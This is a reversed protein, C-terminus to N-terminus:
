RVREEFAVPGIWFGGRLVLGQVGAFPSSPVVGQTAPNAQLAALETAYRLILVDWPSGPVDSPTPMPLKAQSRSVVKTTDDVATSFIMKFRSGDALVLQAEVSFEEFGQTPIKVQRFPAIMKVSSKYPYQIKPLAQGPVLTAQITERGLDPDYLGQTVNTKTNSRWGTTPAEGSRGPPDSTFGGAGELQLRVRRLDLTGFVQVQELAAFDTGLGVQMDAGLDRTFSAVAGTALDGVPFTPVNREVYAMGGGSVWGIKRRRGLSDQVVARMMFSGGAPAEFTWGVQSRDSGLRATTPTGVGFVTPPVRTTALQLAEGPLDDVPPVAVTAFTGTGAVRVWQAADLSLDIPTIAAVISAEDVVVENSPDGEVGVADYGTVRFSVDGGLPLGPLTWVATWAMTGDGQLPPMGVDTGADWDAGGPKVHIRYGVAGWSPEWTVRARFDTAASSATAAVLFAVAAVAAGAARTLMSRAGM